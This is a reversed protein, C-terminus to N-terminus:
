REGGRRRPATRREPKRDTLHFNDLGRRRSSDAFKSASHKAPPKAARTAAKKVSKKVPKEAAKEQPRPRWLVLLKGIHQVPAAAMRDAITLLLAERLERDDEFVRVKILEHATLAVDMERLVADTLGSQGIIVVPNMGHALARLERRKSADIALMIKEIILSHVFGQGNQKLFFQENRPNRAQIIGRKDDDKGIPIRCGLRLGLAFGALM